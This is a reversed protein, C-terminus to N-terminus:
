PRGSGGSAAAGSAMGTAEPGSPPASKPAASRAKVLCREREKGRLDHCRKVLESAVPQPSTPVQPTTGIRSGPGEALASAAVFCGVLVALPRLMRKRPALGMGPIAIARAPINRM